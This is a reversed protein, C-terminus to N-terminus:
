KNLINMFKRLFRTFNWCRSTYINTLEAKLIELERDKEQIKTLFDYELTVNNIVTGKTVNLFIQPDNHLFVIENNMRVIGNHTLLKYNELNNIKVSNIKISLSQELPDIRIMNINEVSNKFDFVIKNNDLSYSSQIKETENFGLNTDYYLNAIEENKFNVVKLTSDKKAEIVFQYVEGFKRNILNNVIGEDFDDYNYNFETLDPRAYSGTEFNIKLNANEILKELTNKTFFRIHTNDLLGINRYTFQDNLLEMIIANHAINPVSLLISGNDKLLSVSKTLVKEPNYLHELVDAFIIYDFALNKYEELWTYNEVDNILIKECYKEADNASNEDIEVAYIKCNLQEKLYKTMRGNAPGFELVISNPEIRSIILSLSNRTDLDLDFDYKM